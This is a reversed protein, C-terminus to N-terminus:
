SFLSVFFYIVNICVAAAILCYFLTQWTKIRVQTAILWLAVLVAVGLLLELGFAGGGGGRACADGSTSLLVLASIFVARRHVESRITKGLAHSLFFSSRQREGGSISLLNLGEKAAEDDM